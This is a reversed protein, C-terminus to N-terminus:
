LKRSASPRAPVYVWCVVRRGSSTVRVRRRRYLWPMREWRDAAAFQERTLLLLGGETRSGRDRVIGFYPGVCRKRRWGSLVAPAWPILRGFLKKQRFPSLLTGYAFVRHRTQPAKM